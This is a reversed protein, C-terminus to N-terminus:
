LLSGKKEVDSSSRHKHYKTHNSYEMLDDDDHAMSKWNSGINNLIFTMRHAKKGACRIWVKRVCLVGVRQSIHHMHWHHRQWQQSFRGIENEVCM